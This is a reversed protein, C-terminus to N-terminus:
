QYSRISQKLKELASEHIRYASVKPIGMTNAVIDLTLEQVYMLDVLQAEDESLVDLHEAVWAHDKNEFPDKM